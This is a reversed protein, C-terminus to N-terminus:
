RSRERARDLADFMAQAGRLTMGGAAARDREDALCRWCFDPSWKEAREDWRARTTIRGCCACDLFPADGSAATGKECLYCIARGERDCGWLPMSQGCKECRKSM